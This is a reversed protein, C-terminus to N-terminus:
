WDSPIHELFVGLIAVAYSANGLSKLFNPILPVVAESLV